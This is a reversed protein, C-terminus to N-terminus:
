CEEHAKPEFALAPIAAQLTPVCFKDPAQSHYAPKAHACPEPLAQTFQQGQRSHLPLTSPGFMLM